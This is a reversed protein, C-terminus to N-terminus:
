NKTVNSEEMSDFCASVLGYAHSRDAKETCDAVYAFIISFTVSFTGSVSLCAFFWRCLIYFYFCTIM